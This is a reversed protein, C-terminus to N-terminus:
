DMKRGGRWRGGEGGDEEGELKRGGRWRGGVMERGGDGEWWRGGVMERGGDGRRGRWRGGEGGDGEGEEKCLPYLTSDMATMGCWTLDMMKALLCITLVKNM